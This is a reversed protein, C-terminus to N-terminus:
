NEQEGAAKALIEAARPYLAIDPTESPSRSTVHWGDDQGNLGVSYLVYGAPQDAILRYVIPRGGEAFPDALDAMTLEPFAPAIWGDPRDAERPQWRPWVGEGSGSAVRMAIAARLEDVADELRGPLEGHVHRYREVAVKALTAAVMARTQLTHYVFTEIFPEPFAAAYRVNPHGERLMALVSAELEEGLDGDRAMLMSIPRFMAVLARREYFAEIAPEREAPEGFMAREVFGWLREAERVTAAADAHAPVAAGHTRAFARVIGGEMGQDIPHGSLGLEAHLVELRSREIAAARRYALGERWDPRLALYDAAIADLVELPMGSGPVHETAAAVLYESVTYWGGAAMLGDTSVASRECDQRANFAMYQVGERYWAWDKNVVAGRMPLQMRRAVDTATADWAFPDPPLVGDRSIEVSHLRMPWVLLNGLPEQVWSAFDDLEPSWSDKLVHRALMEGPSRGPQQEEHWRRLENHAEVYAEAGPWTHRLGYIVGATFDFGSAMMRGNDRAVRVDIAMPHLGILRQELRAHADREAQVYQAEATARAPAAVRAAGDGAPGAGAWALGAGVGVACAAVGARCFYKM